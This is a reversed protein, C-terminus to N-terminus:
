HVAYRLNPGPCCNARNILLSARARKRPWPMLVSIQYIEFCRADRPIVFCIPLGVCEAFTRPTCDPLRLGIEICLQFDRAYM